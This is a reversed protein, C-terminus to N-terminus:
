AGKMTSRRVIVVREHLANFFYVLIFAHDTQQQLAHISSTMRESTSTIMNKSM